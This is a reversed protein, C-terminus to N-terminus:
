SLAVAEQQEVLQLVGVRHLHVHDVHEAAVPQGAAPQEGDAVGLLRDVAEAAAHVRHAGNGGRLAVEAAGPAEALVQRAEGTGDEGM